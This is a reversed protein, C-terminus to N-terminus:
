FPRELMNKYSKFKMVSGEKPMTLITGEKAINYCASIHKDFKEFSVKAQCFPCFRKNCDDKQTSMSLLRSIHKIYVFHSREENEIRLLYILDKNYHKANGNREKHIENEENIYYVFICM